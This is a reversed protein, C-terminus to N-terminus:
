REDDADVVYGAGTITRILPPEGLKRRLTSVTVKVSNTFPNANEDWAKELLREASLPTGKARLLEELISFEKPSLDIRRGARSVTHQAPNLALDGAELVPPLPTFRRRTLARLRAVLEEFEFPKGLYDDAGLGLGAVRDRWGGSATLMLVAPREERAVLRRCVDDGHTGPLDRDLVVVDYDNVDVAFLAADGDPAVDAWIRELALGERLSEALFEEDEAILVRM